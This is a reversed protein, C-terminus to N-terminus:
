FPNLEQFAQWEAENWSLGADELANAREGWAQRSPIPWDAVQSRWASRDPIAASNPPTPKTPETPAAPIAPPDRDDEGYFHADAM